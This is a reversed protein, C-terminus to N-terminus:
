RLRVQLDPASTSTRGVLTSTRGVLTSTRGVACVRERADHWPAAVAYPAAVAMSHICRRTAW